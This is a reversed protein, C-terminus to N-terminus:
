QSQRRHSVGASWGLGEADERADVVWSGGAEVSLGGAVALSLGTGLQLFARPGVEGSADVAVWGPHRDRVTPLYGVQARFLGGERGDVPADVLVAGTRVRLGAEASAWIRSAGLAPSAGIAAVTDVDLQGNGLAPDFTTGAAGDSLPFRGTVRLSVPIETGPPSLGVGLQAPALGATRYSLISGQLQNASWAYPLSAVLEVHDVVGVEAYVGVGRSRFAVAQEPTEFSAFYGKVYWDGPDRVWPGALAATALLGIM